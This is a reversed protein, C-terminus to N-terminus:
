RKLFIDKKVRCVMAFRACKVSGVNYIIKAQLLDIVRGGEGM